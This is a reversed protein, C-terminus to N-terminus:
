YGAGGPLVQIAEAAGFGFYPTAPSIVSAGNVAHAGGFGDLVYGEQAVVPSAILLVALAPLIHLPFRRIRQTREYELNRTPSM